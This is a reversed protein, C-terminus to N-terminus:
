RPARSHLRWALAATLLVVLFVTGFATLGHVMALQLARYTHPGGLFRRGSVALGCVIAPITLLSWLVAALRPPLGHGSPTRVVSAGMYWRRSWLVLLALGIATSAHQLLKFLRPGSGDFLPTRLVPFLAVGPGSAHTFADWAVHTLAGLLIAAVLRVAGPRSATEAWSRLELRCAVRAPLLALVLPRILVEHLVFGLLGAPLCFWLLGAPSHSERGLVGLPLFYPLDPTLSGVVLASLSGPGLWRRLPVAAAPHALTFPM